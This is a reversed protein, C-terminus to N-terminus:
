SNLHKPAHKKDTTSTPLRPTTKNIACPSMKSKPPSKTTTNTSDSTFFKPSTIPHTTLSTKHQEFPLPSKECRKLRINTSAFTKLTPACRKPITIYLSKTTKKHRSQRPFITPTFTTISTTTSTTTLSAASNKHVSNKNKYHRSQKPLITPAYTTISITCSTTTNTHHLLLSLPMIM